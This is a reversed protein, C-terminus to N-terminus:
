LLVLLLHVFLQLLLLLIKHIGPLIVVLLLPRVLLSQIRKRKVCM